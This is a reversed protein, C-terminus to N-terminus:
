VEVMIISIIGLIIGIKNIASIDEKFFFLGALSLLTINLLLFIVGSKTFTEYKLSSVWCGTGMLYLIIGITILHNGGNDNWMKFFIDAFIELTAGIIVLVLAIKSPSMTVVPIDACKYWRGVDIEVDRKM